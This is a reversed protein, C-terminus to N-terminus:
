SGKVTSEEKAACPLEVIEFWYKGLSKMVDCLGEFTVPKTIYSNAGLNYSRLIDEEDKSTTLIVVPIDRLNADNKIEKLAERGDKRPMNLDLLILGPRPAAQADAYDGRHQLYDVLEEGDEVFRLDNVLRSAEFAKSVLLCDDQDDDAMLITISKNQNDKM